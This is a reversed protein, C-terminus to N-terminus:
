VGRSSNTDYDEVVSDAYLDTVLFTMIMREAESLVM